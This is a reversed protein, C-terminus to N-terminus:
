KVETRIMEFAAPDSEWYAVLLVASGFESESLHLQTLGNFSFGDGDNKLSLETLILNWQDVVALVEALHVATRKILWERFVDTGAVPPLVFPHAPPRPFMDLEDPTMRKEVVATLTPLELVPGKDLYPLEADCDSCRFKDDILTVAEFHCWSVYYPKDEMFSTFPLGLRDLWVRDDYKDFVPITM